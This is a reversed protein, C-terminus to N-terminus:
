EDCREKRFFEKLLAAAEDARVGSTINKIHRTYLTLVGEKDLHYGFLPSPAGYVIREIRSLASLSVCMMCPELTVYLTCQNLRWDSRTTCANEIAQVEAHHSQCHYAEVLNYGQGIVTGYADVVVAGIPVEGQEGGQRAVILAKDMFFDDHLYTNM